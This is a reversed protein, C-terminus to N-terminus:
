PMQKSSMRFQQIDFMECAKRSPTLEKMSYRFDPTRQLKHQVGLLTLDYFLVPDVCQERHAPRSSKSFPKVRQLQHIASFATAPLLQKPFMKYLASRLNPFLFKISFSLDTNNM